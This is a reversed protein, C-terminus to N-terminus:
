LEENLKEKMKKKDEYMAKDARKYVEDFKEDDSEYYAVGVAIGTNKIEYRHTKDINKLRKIRSAIRKTYSKNVIVAFEDGGLRYCRGMSGFSRKIVEAAWLIYEDGKGHGYNDNVYKLNNLDIAVVAIGTFDTNEKEWVDLGRRNYFKTMEDIKAQNKYFDAMKGEQIADLTEAFGQISLMIIYLLLGVKGVVDNEQQEQVYAVLDTIFSVMLIMGGIVSTIVRRDFGFNRMRWIIAWATYIICLVLSIHNLWSSQKYEYIGTVHGIIGIAAMFLCIIILLYSSRKDKVNLYESIYLVYPVGLLLLLTYSILSGTGRDPFILLALDTENYLWVGLMVAFIGFFLMSTDKMIGNYSIVCLIILVFGLIISIFSISGGVISNRFRQNLLNYVSGFTFEPEYFDINKYVSTLVVRVVTTGQPVEITNVRAGVTSGFIKNSVTAEYILTDDAYVKVLQHLSRFQIGIGTTVVWNDTAANVDLLYERTEIDSNLSTKIYYPSITVTNVKDSVNKFSTVGYIAAAGMYILSVILFIGFLFKIKREM